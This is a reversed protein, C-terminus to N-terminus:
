VSMASRLFVLPPGFLCLRCRRRLGDLGLWSVRGAALRDDFVPIVVPGHNRFRLPCFRELCELFVAVGSLIEDLVMVAGLRGGEGLYVTKPFALIATTHGLGGTRSVRM